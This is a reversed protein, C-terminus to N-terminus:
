NGDPQPELSRNLVTQPIAVSKMMKLRDMQQASIMDNFILRGRAGVWLKVETKEPVQTQAAPEQGVVLGVLHPDTVRRSQLGTEANFALGGNSIKQLANFLSSRELQPVPVMKVVPEPKDTLVKIVVGVIGALVVAAVVYWIWRKNGGGDPIVVPEKKVIEFYVSEGDTYKEGPNDPDFVRLRYSYRGPPASEPVQINVTVQTMTDPDLDREAPPEVTLWGAQAPDAPAIQTGVRIRAGQSNKVNFVHAAKGDGGCVVVGKVEKISVISM